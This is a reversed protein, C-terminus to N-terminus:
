RATGKAAKDLSHPNCNVRDPGAPIALKEWPDERTTAQPEPTREEPVVPKFDAM